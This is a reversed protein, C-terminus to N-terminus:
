RAASALRKQRGAETARYQQLRSAPKDPLTMEILGAALAPRLYNDRFTQRHKLGLRRQLESPALSADALAV